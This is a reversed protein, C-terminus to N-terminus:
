RRRGRRGITRIRAPKHNVVITAVRQMQKDRPARVFHYHTTKLGSTRNGTKVEVTAANAGTKTVIVHDSNSLAASRVIPGGLRDIDGRTHWKKSRGAGASYERGDTYTVISGNSKMKASQGGSMGMAIQALGSAMKLASIPKSKKDALAASPAAVILILLAVCLKRKNM